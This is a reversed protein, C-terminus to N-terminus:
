LKHKSISNSVLQLKQDIYDQAKEMKVQIRYKYIQIYNGYMGNMIALAVDEDLFSNEGNTRLQYDKKLFELFNAESYEDDKDANMSYVSMTFMNDDNFNNAIIEKTDHVSERYITFKNEINIIKSMSNKLFIPAIKKNNEQIELHWNDMLENFESWQEVLAALNDAYDKLQNYIIKNKKEEIEM